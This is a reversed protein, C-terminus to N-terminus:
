ANMREILIPLALRYIVWVFFLLSVLGLNVLLFGPFFDSSFGTLWNRTTMIIPTLPNLRFLSAAFGQEPIPFVVPTLYMLFQMVLPVVKGIDSYLLGLPTVLLGFATGALILSILGLPFLLLYWTPSFGMIVLAVLVIIVKIGGNFLTQLLGSLILEERPFSIKSLM